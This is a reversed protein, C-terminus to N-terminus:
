SSPFYTSRANRGSLRQNGKKASSAVMGGIKHVAQAAPYDQKDSAEVRVAKASAITAFRYGDFEEAFRAGDEASRFTLFAYGRNCVADATSIGVPLSVNSYKGEFGAEDVAGQLEAMTARFPINRLLYTKVDQGPKGGGGVVRGGREPRNRQEGRDRSYSSETPCATSEAMQGLISASEKSYRKESTGMASRSSPFPRLQQREPHHQPDRVPLHLQGRSSPYQSYEELPANDACGGPFSDFTHLPQECARGGIFRGRADSPQHLFPERGYPHWLDPMSSQAYGGSSPIEAHQLELQPLMSDACGQSWPSEFEPPCVVSAAVHIAADPAPRHPASPELPPAAIPQGQGSAQLLKLPLPPSGAPVQLPTTGAQLPTTGATDVEELAPPSSQPHSGVLLTDLAMRFEEPLMRGYSCCLDCLHQWVRSFRLVPPDRIRYYQCASLGSHLTECFRSISGSEALRLSVMEMAVADDAGVVQVHPLHFSATKASAVTVDCGSLINLASRCAPGDIVGVVFCQVSLLRERAAHILEDCGPPFYQLGAVWLELLLIRHKLVSVDELAQLLEQLNELDQHVHYIRARGAHIHLATSVPSAPRVTSGHGLLNAIPAFM